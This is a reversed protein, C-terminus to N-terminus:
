VASQQLETARDSAADTAGLHLGIWPATPAVVGGTDYVLARLGVEHIYNIATHTEESTFGSMAIIVTSARYRAAAGALAQQDGVVAIGLTARNRRFEANDIIAVPRHASGPDLLLAHVLRELSEGIGFVIVRESYPAPPPIRRTQWYRLTYRLGLNPLLAWYGAVVVTGRGVPAWGTTVVILAYALPVLCQVIATAGVEEFRGLGFRGRYIGAALGITLQLEAIVVCGTAINEGGTGFVRGHRLIAGLALGISWMCVDFAALRIALRWMSRQSGQAKRSASRAGGLGTVVAIVTRVLIKADAGLSWHRVYELELDLQQPLLTSVYFDERESPEVQGLVREENRYEVATLGTLGPRVLLLKLHEPSYHAVYVPAEPRPGVFSMDGKLVNWLQPLEDLKTSRLLAGLPTIRADDEATIQSLTQPAVRMSRFKFIQFPRGLQGVRQGRHLVPGRGGVLKVALALVAMLPSLIVLMGLALHVDILRKLAATGRRQAREANM